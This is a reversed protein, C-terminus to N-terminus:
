STNAYKLKDEANLWDYKFAAVNVYYSCLSKESVNEIKQSCWLSIVYSLFSRNLDTLLLIGSFLFSCIM